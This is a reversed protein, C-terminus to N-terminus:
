LARIVESPDGTSALRGADTTLTRLDELLSNAPINDGSVEDSEILLRGQVISKEISLENKLLKWWTDAQAYFRLPCSEAGGVHVSTVASDSHTLVWEGGGAGSAIVGITRAAEVPAWTAVRHLPLMAALSQHDVQRASKQAKVQDRSLDRIDDVTAEQCPLEGCVEIAHGINTQDFLPDARFHHAFVDLFPKALRLLAESLPEVGSPRSRVGSEKLVEYFGRDIDRASIGSKATLHYTRGHLTPQRLIQVIMRAVWSAKVVNKREEGSLGLYGMWEGPAPLGFQNSATQYNAFTNYLTKDSMSSGLDTDVVISPRYITLSDVETAVSLLNEALVKSREYDNAFSQDLSREDECVVGTRIGCVYATSVFHWEHVGAQRCFDLLRRTGEVNTRYPEGDPHEAAPKFSLSAASHLVRGCNAAVWNQQERDLGLNPQTLDGDLVVPRVFSRKYRRELDRLITEVREAASQNRNSRVLVAVPIRSRALDALLYRGILGTGGTLLILRQNPKRRVTM